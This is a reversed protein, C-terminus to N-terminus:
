CCKVSGTINGTPKRILEIDQEVVYSSITSVTVSNNMYYRIDYTATIPYTGSDVALSYFGLANTTTSAGTTSVKVGALVDKTISDKVTGNIYRQSITATNTVMTDNINGSTDMTRIGITYTGPTLTANYYQVGKLVYNKFVGDLYIMVKDFDPDEPDTWTWNIYTSADSVNMLNTVSSPPSTDAIINIPGLEDSREINAIPSYAFMTSGSSGWLIGRLEVDNQANIISFVPSGSDGSGVGASVFDQCLQVINTGSVDTDVCTDTVQGQTWGTTRGVKNLTQGVLSPGESVIRFSGAITLSNTNLSDPKQIFGLDATVGPDRAAFASDSYRCVKSSPCGGGSTYLPDSIETGIHNGTTILSQYYSTSDVGGQNYTCHSNVVFGNVGSRVGNFGLTCIYYYSPNNSFTIQLGGQLPRINDRLTAALVVPKAQEVIFAGRPIGQQILQQEIVGILDPREVGVKLSNSSEDIDTFVVGQINFLGRMQEHWEKLKTFNYQGKLVKIGGGPIRERGFVSIIADEAALEKEPKLLYVKLTDGELFMGGFEPVKGSVEDFKDDLTVKDSHGNVVITAAAPFSFAIFFVIVTLVSPFWLINKELLRVM